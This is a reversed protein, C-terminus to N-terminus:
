IIFFIKNLDIININKNNSIALENHQHFLPKEVLITKDTLNEELFKLQEFHLSTSSAIIIYDPMIEGIDNINTITKYPLNKQSSLITIEAIEDMENLIKAHRSGISGYGIILTKMNLADRSSTPVRDM